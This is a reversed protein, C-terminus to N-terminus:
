NEAESVVISAPQLTSQTLVLTSPDAPGALHSYMFLVLPPPQGKPLSFFLFSCEPDTETLFPAKQYIAHACLLSSFSFWPGSLLHTQNTQPAKILELTQLHPLNKQSLPRLDM